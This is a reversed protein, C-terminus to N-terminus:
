YHPPGSFVSPHEGSRFAPSIPRLLCLAFAVALRGCFVGVVRIEGLLPGVLPAAPPSALPSATRCPASQVTRNVVRRASLASGELGAQVIAAVKGPYSQPWPWPAADGSGLGADAHTGEGEPACGQGDAHLDALLVLKEAVHKQREVPNPAPCRASSGPAAVRGARAGRRGANPAGDQHSRCGKCSDAYGQVV